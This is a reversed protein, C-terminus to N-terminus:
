VVLHGFHERFNRRATGSSGPAAGLTEAIRDSSSAVVAGVCAWGAGGTGSVITAAGAAACARAVHRAGEAAVLDEPLQAAAAHAGHVQGPLDREVAVNRQLDHPGLPAAVGREDGAERALGVGGRLEDMVVDHLDVVEALVAPG